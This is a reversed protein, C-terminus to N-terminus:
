RPTDDPMSSAGRKKTGAMFGTLLALAAWNWAALDALTMWADVQGHAFGAALGALLGAQALHVHRPRALGSVTRAFKAVVALTAGIWVLGGIGWSTALELWINHPHRLNPDIAAGMPIAAPFRWFFGGPGVGAWPHSRWLALATQWIDLRAMVTDSNALRMRFMWGLGMMAVVVAVLVLLQLQKTAGPLHRGLRSGSSTTPASRSLWLFTVIGAPVGLLLAGRSATLLLAGGVMATLCGGAVLRITTTSAPQRQWAFGTAATLGLGLFFTRVFYLASHNPSFHPGVLRRVADATTGAGQLWMVLGFAAALAGGVFLAYMAGTLVTRNDGWLRIMLYLVLPGVVLDAMGQWYAPWHWVNAAALISVGLWGVAIVDVTAVDTTKGRLRAIIGSPSGTAARRRVSLYLAPLGAVLLAQTPPLLLTEPGLALEKHFIHFPLLALALWLGHHPVALMLWAAVGLCLAILPPWQAVFYLGALVVWIGGQTIPSLRRYQQAWRLWPLHRAASQSRWVVIGLGIIQLASWWMSRTSTGHEPRAPRDVGANSLADALDANFAFGWLPDSPATAPQDIAWGMGVLWPWERTAIVMSDHAFRQQDAPLVTRWPSAARVNWGMRAALLPWAGAGSAVLRRRILAARQYNLLWPQQRADQASHGFGFPQIAIIDAAELAGAAIMRQLFYPEDIATHGRDVTPALAATIVVAADDEARIAAAGARLLQAYGVPEIHRNGWHPAINPEDWLQYFDVRDGYRRAVDGAFAAFLAPHAPPALANDFPAQDAEDRAWPPSGDLLLIPTLGAAVLADVMADAMQWDFQGPAPEIVRWDLRQRVWGIQQAALTTLAASRDRTTYQELQTTIGLFPLPLPPRMAEAQLLQRRRLEWGDAALQGILMWGIMLLLALRLGALQTRTRAM